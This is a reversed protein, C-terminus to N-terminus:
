GRDTGALVPARGGPPGCRHHQHDRCAGAVGNGAAHPVAGRLANVLAEPQALVSEAVAVATSTSTTAM